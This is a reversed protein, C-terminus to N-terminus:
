RQCLLAAAADAFIETAPLEVVQRLIRRPREGPRPIRLADVVYHVHVAGRRQDVVVVILMETAGPRRLVRNACAVRSLLDHGSHLRSGNGPADKQRALYEEQEIAVDSPIPDAAAASRQAHCNADICRTRVRLVTM